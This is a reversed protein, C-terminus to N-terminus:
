RDSEASNRVVKCVWRVMADLVGEAKKNVYDICHALPIMIVVTSISVFTYAILTHFVGLTTRNSLLTYVYLMSAVIHIHYLYITYGHRAYQMVIYRVVRVRAAQRCCWQLPRHLMILAATTYALFMINSPFKNHQMNWGYGLQQCMAVACLMVLLIIYSNYPKERRYYLGAFVPVIYCLVYDPHFYLAAMVLLLLAYITYRNVRLCVYHLLPLLLAIIFYPRIFWLHSLETLQGMLTAGCYRIYENPVDKLILSGTIYRDSLYLSLYISLPIFIRKVRSWVYKGYSKKHSLAYSAGSIYFIIPMEILFLTAWTDRHWDVFISSVIHVCGVIYLMVSGRYLDLDNDRETTRNEEIGVQM